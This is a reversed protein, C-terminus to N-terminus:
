KVSNLVEDMDLTIYAYNSTNVYAYVDDTELVNNTNFWGLPPTTSHSGYDYVSKSADGVISSHNTYTNYAYDYINGSADRTMSKKVLGKNM